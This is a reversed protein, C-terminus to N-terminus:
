DFFPHPLRASLLSRQSFLFRGDCVFGQAAWDVENLAECWAALEDSGLDARHPFIALISGDYDKCDHVFFPRRQRTKANVYIRPADSMFHKRGWKWWNEETFRRVGRTILRAKYPLLIEPPAPADESWFMPRLAGSTRTRSCVFDRNGPLAGFLPDDGSIAGVRIRAVDGLRLGAQDPDSATEFSLHGQSILSQRRVWDLADLDTIRARGDLAAFQVSRDTRGKEFRWIMCNPTAGKFVPRDGLEVVHTFSGQEFMWANLRAASTLKIFDRPTIFILEGGPALLKVCREIFHLYLNSRGDLCDASLAARTGPLIDQYRVYPPNGIITDFGRFAKGPKWRFFDAQVAGPPCVNPDLEVATLARAPFASKLAHYFAGDGCSPELVAGQAGDKMLGIMFRVVPEPTFVQGHYVADLQM